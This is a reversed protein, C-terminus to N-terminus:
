TYCAQEWAVKPTVYVQIIDLNQEINLIIWKKFILYVDNYLDIKSKDILSM